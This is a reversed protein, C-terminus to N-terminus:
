HAIREAEEDNYRDGLDEEMSDKIRKITIEDDVEILVIKNLIFNKKALTLAQKRTKPFGEIIWSEKREDFGELQKEILDIAIEDEAYSHNKMADQIRKGLDSKKKVERKLLDGVIVSQYKFHEQLM